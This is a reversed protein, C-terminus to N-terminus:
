SRGNANRGNGNGAGYFEIRDPGLLMELDSMCLKSPNIRFHEGTKLRCRKGTADHLELYVPCSGPTRQLIAALRDVAELGHTNLSLTVRM